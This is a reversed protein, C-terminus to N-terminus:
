EHRTLRSIGKMNLAKMKHLIMDLEPEMTTNFISLKENRPLKYKRYTALIDLCRIGLEAQDKKLRLYPLISSLFYRGKLSQISWVGVPACTPKAGSYTRLHGGFESLLNELVWAERIRITVHLIFQNKRGSRIKTRDSKTLSICGEGDFLGAYYAVQIETMM